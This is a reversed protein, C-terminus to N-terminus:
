ESYGMFRESSDPRLLYCETKKKKKKERDTWIEAEVNILSLSSFPNDM